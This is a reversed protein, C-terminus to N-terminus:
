RLCWLWQYRRLPIERVRWLLNGKQGNMIVEMLILMYIFSVFAIVALVSGKGQMFNEVIFSVSMIIQFTIIIANRLTKKKM